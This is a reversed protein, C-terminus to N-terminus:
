QPPILTIQKEDYDTPTAIIIYDSGELALKEDSTALLNLKNEKLAKEIDKDQIPSRNKNITDIKEQNIDYIKVDNKESLLVALSFGVYGAGVITIKKM